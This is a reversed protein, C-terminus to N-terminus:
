LWASQDGASLGSRNGSYRGFGWPGDHQEYLFDSNSAALADAITTVSGLPWGTLRCGRAPPRTGLRAPAGTVPAAYSVLVLRWARERVARDRGAPDAVGPDHGMDPRSPM